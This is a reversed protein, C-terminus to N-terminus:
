SIYPPRAPPPAPRAPPAAVHMHHASPWPPPRASRSSATKYSQTAPFTRHHRAWTAHPPPPPPRPDPAPRPLCALLLSAPPPTSGPLGRWVFEQPLLPPLCISSSSVLEFM